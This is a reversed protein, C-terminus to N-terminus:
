HRFLPVRINRSSAVTTKLIIISTATSILFEVAAIVGLVPVIYSRPLVLILASFSGDSKMSFARTPTTETITFVSPDNAARIRM